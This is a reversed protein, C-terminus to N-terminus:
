SPGRAAHRIFTDNEMLGLSGEACQAETYAQVKDPASGPTRIAVPVPQDDHSGTEVLTPHDPLVSVVVDMDRQDLGDLIPATLRQDLMEICRVKLEPDRAHGAEDTAEVHLYVLDYKDLAKLAAEAKGEYNTDWLGTAGPVDIIDAGAFKGLGKVLDVASIVAPRIGFRQTLTEMEPRRGPSWPWICDATPKGETARKKNVPHAALIERSRHILEVLREGTHHAQLNGNLPKPLLEDVRGGFYDHPPICDVGPDAWGNELVMVQRFGTGPYIRFPREGLCCGLEENLFTVLEGAEESSIHGASHNAILDGDLSILNLRLAVDEPKLSIDLSAAELTARGTFTKRSDYGLVQLNAVASGHPMGKPITTLLGTRGERAIRDIHPKHAVQLPTKGGLAAVPRDSMGDGLIIISKM